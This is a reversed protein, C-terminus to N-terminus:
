VPINGQDVLAIIQEYLEDPIKTLKNGLQGYAWIWCGGDEDYGLGYQQIVGFGKNYATISEYVGDQTGSHRGVDLGNSEGEEEQLAM